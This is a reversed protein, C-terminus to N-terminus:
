NAQENKQNTLFKNLVGFLNDYIKSSNAVYKKLDEDDAGKAPILTVVAVLKSKGDGNPELRLANLVNELCPVPPERKFISYTLAHKSPDKELQQEEYVIGSLDSRVSRVCGIKDEGDGIIKMNSIAPFWKGWGGFDELHPWVTEAPHDFPVEFNYVHDSSEAM